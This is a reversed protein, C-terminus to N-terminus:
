GETAGSPLAAGKNRGQNFQEPTLQGTDEVGHQPTAQVAPKGTDVVMPRYGQNLEPPAVLKEEPVQVDGGDDYVKPEGTMSKMPSLHRENLLATGLKVLNGQSMAQQKDVAIAKREADTGKVEPAPQVPQPQQSPHTGMERQGAEVIAPDPPLAQTKAPNSTDGKPNTLPANDTNMKAGGSIRETERPPIETDLMPRVGQPNPLVRGGFDAPAGVDGGQDFNQLNQLIDNGKNQPTPLVVDDDKVQVDGGRDYTPPTEMDHYVKSRGILRDGADEEAEAHSSPIGKWRAPSKGEGFEKGSLPDVMWEPNSTVQRATTDVSERM